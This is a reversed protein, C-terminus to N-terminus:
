FLHTFNVLLIVVVEMGFVFATMEYDINQCLEGGAYGYAGRM